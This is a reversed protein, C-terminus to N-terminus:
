LFAPNARKLTEVDTPALIGPSVMELNGARFAALVTAADPLPGYEYADVYPKGPLFYDPNRMLRSAGQRDIKDVLFPGPGVVRGEKLDGKQEVNERAVIANGVSGLNILFDATPQSLTIKFTGKDIAEMKAIPALLSANPAGPGRMREFSYVIDDLTLA